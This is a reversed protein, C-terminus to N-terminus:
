IELYDSWLTEKKPLSTLFNGLSNLTILRLLSNIPISRELIELEVAQANKM